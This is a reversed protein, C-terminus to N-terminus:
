DLPRIECPRTVVADLSTTGDALTTEVVIADRTGFHGTGIATITGAPLESACALARLQTVLSASRDGSATSSPAFSAGSSDRARDLNAAM